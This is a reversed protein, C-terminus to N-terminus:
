RPRRYRHATSGPRPTASPDTITRFLSEMVALGSALGTLRGSGPDLPTGTWGPGALMTLPHSRAGRVGWECALLARAVTLDATQRCQAWLVVACPGLRRVTSELAEVPVAAGFIRTPLGREVLAAWLAEIPLCHQETPMCALVVPPRNDGTTTVTSRLTTSVHWSLLHEVEVYSEESAAWNRGIAHLAPAIIQEWAVVVGYTDVASWLQAQVASADLREAARVLGRSEPWVQGLPLDRFGGPDRPGPLAAQPRDAPPGADELAMRAAEAPTVGQATLRCMHELRAVDDPTWRRHRG